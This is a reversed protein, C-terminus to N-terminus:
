SSGRSFPGAVWVLVRAQLIGHVSSGPLCYLGNTQLSDSVASRSESEVKGDVYDTWNLETWDNLWTRSKAVEHVVAYWAERDMVLERLKSLSMDMSHTIGDLWRWGRDDGDGGVGFREWCPTKKFSDTRWM